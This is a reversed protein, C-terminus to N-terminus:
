NSEEIEDAPVLQATTIRSRDDDPFDVISETRIWDQKVYVGFQKRGRHYVRQGEVFTPDSM